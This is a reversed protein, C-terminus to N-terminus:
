EHDIGRYTPHNSLGNPHKNLDVALICEVCILHDTSAAKVYKDKAKGCFSCRATKMDVTYSM